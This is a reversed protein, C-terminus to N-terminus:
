ASLAPWEIIRTSGFFIISPVSWLYNLPDGYILAELGSLLRQTINRHDTLPADCHISVQRDSLLRCYTPITICRNLRAYVEIFKACNVSYGLFDCRARTKGPAESILCVAYGDAQLNQLLRVLSFWNTQRALDIMRVGRSQLFAQDADGLAWYACVTKLGISRLAALSILPEGYRSGAFILRESKLSQVLGAIETLGHIKIAKFNRLARGHIAAAREASAYLDDFWVSSFEQGFRAHLGASMAVAAQLLDIRM